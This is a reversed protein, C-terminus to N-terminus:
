NKDTLGIKKKIALPLSLLLFSNKATAGVSLFLFLPYMNKEGM